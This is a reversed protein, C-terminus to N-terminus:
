SVERVNVGKVLFWIGFIFEFLAGPAMVLMLSEPFNPLLLQLGFCVFVSIYTFLGWYGLWKPIYSSLTFLHMFIIAGISMTIFHINWGINAVDLFVTALSDFNGNVVTNANTNKLLVLPIFTVLVIVFGMIVEGFRFLFAIKALDKHISKAVKYLAFAMWMVLVFMLIDLMQATRFQFESELLTNPNYSGPKVLFNNILGIITTVVYTFGVYKAQLQIKSVQNNTLM